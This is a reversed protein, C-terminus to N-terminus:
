RRTGLWLPIALAPLALLDTPDPTLQVRQIPLWEGAVASLFPQQLVGLGVRYLDSAWPWVQILTFGLATLAVAIWLVRRDPGRWRRLVWSALEWLAQVFLPFFVLGLIDSLKGTVLGPWAAKLWHDNVVM